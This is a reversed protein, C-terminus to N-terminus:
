EEELIIQNNTTKIKIKKEVNITTSQIASKPIAILYSNLKAEGKKNYYKMKVFKAM